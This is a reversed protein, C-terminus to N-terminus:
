YTGYDNYNGEAKIDLLRKFENKLPDRPDEAVLIAEYGKVHMPLEIQCTAVIEEGSFLILEKVLFHGKQGKQSIRETPFAYGLKVKTIINDYANRFKWSITSENPSMYKMLDIYVRIGSNLYLTEDKFDVLRRFLFLERFAAETMEKAITNKNRQLQLRLRGSKLNM